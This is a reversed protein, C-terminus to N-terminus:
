KKKIFRLTSFIKLVTDQQQKTIKSTAMSLALSNNISENFGNLDKLYIGTLDNMPDKAIVIKRLHNQLTDVQIFHAKTEEPITIPYDFTLSDYKCTAIFDAGKFKITDKQNAPRLKILEVKPSNSEDYTVGEKMFQNQANLLWHKKDLFEQQSEILPDSYYGYDFGFWISDGRIKGVYSDIGKGDVIKFDSPFEFDYDGINIENKKTKASCSLLFSIIFLLIFKQM